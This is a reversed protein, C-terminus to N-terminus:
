LYPVSLFLLLAEFHTAITTTQLKHARAAFCPVSRSHDPFDGFHSRSFWFKNVKFNACCLLRFPRPFKSGIGFLSKFKFWPYERNGMHVITRRSHNTACLQFLPLHSVPVYSGFVGVQDFVKGRSFVVIRGSRFRPPKMEKRLTSVTRVLFQVDFFTWPVTAIKCRSGVYRGATRVASCLFSSDAEM